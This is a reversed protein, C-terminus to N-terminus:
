GVFLLALSLVLAVVGVALLLTALLVLARVGRAHRTVRMRHRHGRRAFVEARDGEGLHALDAASLAAENAAGDEDFWRIVAGGPEVDIYGQVPVWTGDAARALLAIVAVVLGSGLGVWSLIEVVAEIANTM